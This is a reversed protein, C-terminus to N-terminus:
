NSTSNSTADSSSSSSTRETFWWSGVALAVLLLSGVLIWFASRQRSAVILEDEGSKVRSRMLLPENELSAYEEPSTIPIEIRVRNNRSSYSSM